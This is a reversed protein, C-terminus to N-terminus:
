PTQMWNGGADQFYLHGRDRAFASTAVPEDEYRFQQATVPFLRRKRRNREIYLKGESASVMARRMGRGAFRHTVSRYEGAYSELEGQAIAPMPPAPVAAGRAIFDEVLGRLANLDKERFVNIVLFYGLGQEVSYGLRSLYGDADGGHGHFLVGRRLWTYNGPGYGFRLGGRAALTTQPREMRAIGAGSLIRQGAYVGRNLFLQIFAGMESPKVNIAGFARYLMHWYPISTRGDSDYGTALAALTDPDPHFGASAMGLPAFIRRAVFDEYVVGTAHELVLAALGAGANSYSHHMGPPWLCRRTEAKWALAERLPLPHDLDFENKGLDPLGATHELLHEVRLPHEMEWPNSVPFAPVITSAPADLRLKGDEAAILLALATFMKTVSGIRFITGDDAPRLSELDATGAIAARLIRNRDAIVLASAPVQLRTRTLEFEEMLADLEAATPTAAAPQVSLWLLLFLSPSRVRYAPCPVLAHYDLSANFFAM